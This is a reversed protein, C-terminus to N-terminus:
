YLISSMLVNVNAFTELKLYDKLLFIHILNGCIQFDIPLENSEIWFFFTFLECGCVSKGNWDLISFIMGVTLESCVCVCVSVRCAYVCWIIVSFSLKAPYYFFYKLILRVVLMMKIMSPKLACRDKKESSM